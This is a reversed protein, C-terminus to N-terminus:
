AVQLAQLYTAELGALDVQSPSLTTMLRGARMVGIRTACQQALFLDHTVMLIAMGRDRLLRIQKSFENAALPDLGSTPEDLLLAEANKAIAIAIGVKQKMGKSYNQVRKDAAASELGAQELWQLQQTKSSRQGTAIAHFYELNERGSLRPYLSVNEPIYAIRQRALHPERTCDFGDVLARGSTPTLFNLFLHITTSKGAGNPGLLCFIEKQEVTLDLADLAKKGDDFVKTLSEAQLMM